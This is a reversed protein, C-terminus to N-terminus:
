PTGAAKQEKEAIRAEVDPEFGVTMMRRWDTEDPPKEGRPVVASLHVTVVGDERAKAAFMAVMKAGEFGREKRVRALDTVAVLVDGQPGPVIESRVIAEGFRERLEKAHRDLYARPTTGRDEHAVTLNLLDANGRLAGGDWWLRWPARPLLVTCGARLLGLAIPGKAESYAYLGKKADRSPEGPKVVFADKPVDQGSLVLAALLAVVPM